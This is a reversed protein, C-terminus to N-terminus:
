SLDSLAFMHVGLVVSSAHAIVAVVDVSFLLSGGFATMLIPQVVGFPHTINAVIEQILLLLSLRSPELIAVFSM